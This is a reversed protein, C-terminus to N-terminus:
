KKSVPTKAPTFHVMYADRRVQYLGAAEGGVNERLFGCHTKSLGEVFEWVVNFFEVSLFSYM